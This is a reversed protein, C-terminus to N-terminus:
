ANQNFVLTDELTEPPQLEENFIYIDNPFEVVEGLLLPVQLSIHAGLLGCLLRLLLILSRLELQDLDKSRYKAINMMILYVIESQFRVVFTLLFNLKKHLIDYDFKGGNLDSKLKTLKIYDEKVLADNILDKMEPQSFKFDANKGRHRLIEIILKVAYSKKQLEEIQQNSDNFDGAEENVNAFQDKM